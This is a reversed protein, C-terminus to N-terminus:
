FGLYTQCISPRLLNDSWSNKKRLCEKNYDEASGHAAELEFDKDEM